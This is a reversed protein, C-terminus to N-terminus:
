PKTAGGGCFWARNATLSKASLAQKVGTGIWMSGVRFAGHDGFRKPYILAKALAPLVTSIALNPQFAQKLTHTNKFRCREVSDHMCRPCHANPKLFVQLPVALAEKQQHQLMYSASWRNYVAALPAIRGSVGSEGLTSVALPPLNRMSAHHRCRKASSCNSFQSPHM